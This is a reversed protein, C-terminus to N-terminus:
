ERGLQEAFVAGIGGCGILTVTMEGLQRQFKEGFVAQRKFMLETEDETPTPEAVEFWSPYFDVPKFDTGKQNWLRFNPQRLSEDFIGSILRPKREIATSLFRAYKSEHSDQCGGRRLRVPIGM